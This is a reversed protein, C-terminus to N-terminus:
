VSSRVEVGSRNATSGSCDRPGPYCYGPYFYDAPYGPYYDAPGGVANAATEGFNYVHYQNFPPQRRSSPSESSCEGGDNEKERSPSSAM